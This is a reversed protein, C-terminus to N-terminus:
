QEQERQKINTNQMRKMKANVNIEYDINKFIESWDDKIDHWKYPHRVSLCKGINLFDANTKKSLETIKEIESKIKDSQLKNLKDINDSSFIDKKSTTEDFQTDINIDFIVKKPVNFDDFEFYVRNKSNKVSFVVLDGNEDTIEIDTITLTGTLIIYSRVLYQPIYETLKGDKIIGLGDFEFTYNKEEKEKDDNEDNEENQKNEKSNKTNKIPSERVSLAPILGTKNDSYFIQMIDKLNTKTMSSLQNKNNVIGDLKADADIKSTLIKQIFDESKMDKTIFANVCLRVSASRSYYDIFYALNEKATEEGLLIYELHSDNLSKNTLNHLKDYAKNLTNAKVNFLNKNANQVNEESDNIERSIYSISFENNKNDSDDLKIDIGSSLIFDFTKLEQPRPIKEKNFYMLSFLFAALLIFRVTNIKM